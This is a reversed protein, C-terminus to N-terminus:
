HDHSRALVGQWPFLSVWRVPRTETAVMRTFGRRGWTSRHGPTSGLRSLYRGRVMNGARFFPEHPVTLFLHGSCVRDLERLVAGPEPLHELVEACVVLDFDGDGFPLSRLDAVQARVGPNRVRFAELAEPRGDVGTVASDPLAERLWETVHGEGCGADLIRGPALPEVETLLRARFRALLRGEVAGARDYKAENDTQQGFDRAAAPSAPPKDLEPQPRM